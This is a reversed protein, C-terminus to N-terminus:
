WNGILVGLLVPSTPDKQEGSFFIYIKQDTLLKQLELGSLEFPSNDFPKQIVRLVKGGGNRLELKSPCSPCPTDTFYRIKLIDKESLSDFVYAAVGFGDVNVAGTPSLLANNLKIQWYDITDPLIFNNNAKVDSILFLFLCINFLRKM